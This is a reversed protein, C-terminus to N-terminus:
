RREEGVGLQPIVDLRNVRGSLKKITVFTIRAKFTLFQEVLMQFRVLFPLKFAHSAIKREFSLLVKSPVYHSDVLLNSEVTVLALHRVTPFIFKSHVELSSMIDFGVERAVDTESREVSRGSVVLVTAVVGVWLVELTRATQDDVLVLSGEISVEANAISLVIDAALTVKLKVRVVISVHQLLM